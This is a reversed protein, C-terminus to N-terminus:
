NKKLDQPINSSVKIISKSCIARLKCSLFLKYEGLPFASLKEDNRIGFVANSLIISFLYYVIPVPNTQYYLTM